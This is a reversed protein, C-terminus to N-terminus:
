RKWVNRTQSAWSLAPPVQGSHTGQKEKLVSAVVKTAARYYRSCCNRLTRVRVSRFFIFFYETSPPDTFLELIQRLM